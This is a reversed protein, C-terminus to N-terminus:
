MINIIANETKMMEEGIVSTLGSPLSRITVFTFHIWSAHMSCACFFPFADAFLAPTTQKTILIQIETCIVLGAVIASRAGITTLPRVSTLAHWAETPSIAFNFNLFASRHWTKIIACANVIGVAAVCALTTVTPNSLM